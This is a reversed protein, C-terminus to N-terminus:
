RGHCAAHLGGRWRRPEGHRSLCLTPTPPDRSKQVGLRCCPFLLPLSVPRVLTHFLPCRLSLHAIRRLLFGGSSAAAAPAAIHHHPLSSRAQGSRQRQLGCSCAIVCATSATVRGGLALCWSSQNPSVCDLTAICQATCLWAARGPRPRSSPRRTRSSALAPDAKRARVRQKKEERM